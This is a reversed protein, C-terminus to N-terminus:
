RNGPARWNQLELTLQGARLPAGRQYFDARHELNIASPLRMLCSSGWELADHGLMLDQSEVVNGVDFVLQLGGGSGVSEPWTASALGEMVRDSGVVVVIVSHEAQSKGYVAKLFGLNVADGSLGFQVESLDFHEYVLAYGGAYEAMDYPTGLTALVETLTSEGPILDQTVTPEIPEGFELYVTSCAPTVALLVPLFHVGRM